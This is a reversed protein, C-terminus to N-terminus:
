VGRRNRVPMHRSILNADPVSLESKVERVARADSEITFVFSDVQQAVVSTSCKSWKKFLPNYIGHKRVLTNDTMFWETTKGDANVWMIHDPEAALWAAKESPASAIDRELVDQALSSMILTDTMRANHGAERITQVAWQM